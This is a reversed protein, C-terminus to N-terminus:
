YQPYTVRSLRSTAPELLWREYNRHFLDWGNDLDSHANRLTLAPRRFQNVISTVLPLTSSIQAFGHIVM